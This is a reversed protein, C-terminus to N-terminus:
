SISRQPRQNPAFEYRMIPRSPVHRAVTVFGARAFTLAYGTHSTSPTLEPDLPYAEVTVAGRRRAMDLAAAILVGTVGHRRYGKRRLFVLDVV